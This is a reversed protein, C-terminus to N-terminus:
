NQQNHGANPGLAERRANHQTNQLNILRENEEKIPQPSDHGPNKPEKKIRRKPM